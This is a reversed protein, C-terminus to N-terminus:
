NKFFPSVIAFANAKGEDERFSVSSSNQQDIRQIKRVPSIENFHNIGTKSLSRKKSNMNNLNKIIM